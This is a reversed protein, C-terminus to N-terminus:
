FPIETNVDGEDTDQQCDPQVNVLHELLSYM